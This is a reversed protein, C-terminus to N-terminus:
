TINIIIEHNDNETIEAQYYCTGYGKQKDEDELANGLDYLLDSIYFNTKESIRKKAKKSLNIIIEM